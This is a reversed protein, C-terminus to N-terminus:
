NTGYVDDIVEVIRKEFLKRPYAKERREFNDGCSMYRGLELIVVEVVQKKNLPMVKEVVVEKIVEKEIEIENVQYGKYLKIVEAKEAKAQSLNIEGRAYQSYIGRSAIYYCREHPKLGKPSPENNKALLDLKNIEM